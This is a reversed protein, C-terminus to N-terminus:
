KTMKISIEVRRNKARGERTKNSAVPRSEGYSVTEILSSPVGKKILYDAVTKARRLGLSKNYSETGVSDTHGESIVLKIYADNRKIYTAVNDLVQMGKATLTAKDFAFYVMQEDMTTRVDRVVKACGDEDVSAGAPTGPCKDRYDPVGDGDSDLPCGMRPGSTYVGASIERATNNPCKDQYDPVGDGDSDLPCGKEDVKVGQPTNPCQDKDDTVGDGDSDVVDGCEEYLKDKPQNKAKVCEGYKTKVPEGQAKGMVYGAEDGAMVPAVATLLVGAVLGMFMQRGTQEFM